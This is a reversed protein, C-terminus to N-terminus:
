KSSGGAQRLKKFDPGVENREVAEKETKDAAENARYREEENRMKRGLFKEIKKMAREKAAASVARGRCLDDFFHTGEIHALSNRYSGWAAGYCYKWRSHETSNWETNEFRKGYDYSSGITMTPKLRDIQKRGWSLGKLKSDIAIDMWFDPLHYEDVMHEGDRTAELVERICYAQRIYDLNRVDLKCLEDVWRVYCAARQDSNTIARLADFASEFHRGINVSEDEIALQFNRCEPPLVVDPTSKACGALALALMTYTTIATRM